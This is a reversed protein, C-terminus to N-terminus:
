VLSRLMWASKEHDRLRKAGLDVTGQDNEREALDVLHRLHRMVAEHSDVLHKVMDRWSLVKDDEPIGSLNKFGSFSADVYFGLARIREAIEDNAEALEEYQKEFLIHLSYFEAGTVNWHYNQTKLYVAYNMALLKALSDSVAQRNKETMGTHFEM